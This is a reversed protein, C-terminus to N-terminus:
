ESKEIQKDNKDIQDTKEICKEDRKSDESNKTLWSNVNAQSAIKFDDVCEGRRTSVSFYQNKDEGIRGAVLVREVLRHLAFNM